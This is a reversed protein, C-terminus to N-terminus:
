YYNMERMLQNYYLIQITLKMDLTGFFYAIASKEINNLRLDRFHEKTITELDKKTQEIYM